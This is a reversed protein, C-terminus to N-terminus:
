EDDIKSRWPRIGLLTGERPPYDIYIGKRLCEQYYKNWAESQKRYFYPQWISVIVKLIIYFPLWIVWFPIAVLIFLTLGGIMGFTWKSNDSM